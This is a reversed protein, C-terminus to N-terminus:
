QGRASGANATASTNGPAPQAPHAPPAPPGAFYQFLEYGGAGLVVAFLVVVMMVQRKNETGLALAM